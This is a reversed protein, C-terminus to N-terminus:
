GTATTYIHTLAHRLASGADAANTDAALLAISRTAWGEFYLDGTRVARELAQRFLDRAAEYRGANTEVLGTAWVIHTELAANGTPAIQRAREVYRAASPPDAVVAFSSVTVAAWAAEFPEEAPDFMGEWRQMTAWAEALRGSFWLARGTMEVCLREGSRTAVTAAAMGRGTSELARQQDGRLTAFMAAVAFAAPGAEDLETVRQAWEGLEHRQQWVAFLLL